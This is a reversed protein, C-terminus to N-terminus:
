KVGGVAFTVEYTAADGSEASYEPESLGTLLANAYVTPEDVVVLDEDTPTVSVTTRWRGVRQRLQRLIPGDRYPSFGRTLTIDDTTAPSALVEPDVQGGNYIKSADSTRNGGTKQNFYGEIGEIKALFQRQAATGIQVQTM